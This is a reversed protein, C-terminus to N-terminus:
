GNLAWVGASLCAAFTLWTIYPLQLLAAAKDTKAFTVTMWLVLFWLLILWLFAFGFAQLDFFIISWFFNVTLQLLFLKLGRSRDPSPPTLFVRAAGIGMLAFLIGWVVPFVAAPPSLPPKTVTKNYLSIGEKTLQGSLAGVGESLAIWFLFASIKRKM